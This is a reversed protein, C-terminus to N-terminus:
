GDAQGYRAGSVRAKRGTVIIELVRTGNSSTTPAPIALYKGDRSAISWSQSPGKVQWLEHANGALDVYLLSSKWGTPNSTVFLGKSDAAWDVSSFTSWNKPVIERAPQGTTSFLRIRNEDTKAVAILKGDPSLASNEIGSKRELRAVEHANGNMPDFTSFLLEASLRQGFVCVSAPARSCMVNTIGPASVVVQSAGGDVPVRMVRPSTKTEVDGSRAPGRISADNESTNTVYLIQTGDPSLRCIDKEEPGSVLMEASTEDIPQRYINPKGTRNSIFIVAKSDPTWDFPVDDADDLTLRRPTSAKGTKASFESVYVDLQSNVRNFALRKGDATISPQAIMGEGSTIREVPGEFAGTASNLMSAFINSYSQNPPLEFMVCLLRGDPLWRLGVDLRPDKLVTKEKGQELNFLEISGSSAFTEYEQKVYAISHGDPSWVPSALVDSRSASVLKKEQGGNMGMLWIELGTDGYAPSKV